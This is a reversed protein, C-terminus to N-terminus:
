KGAIEKARKLAEKVSLRKWDIESQYDPKNDADVAMAEEALILALTGEYLDLVEFVPLMSKAM